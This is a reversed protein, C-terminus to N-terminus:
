AAGRAAMVSLGAAALLAHLEARPLWTTVVTGGPSEIDIVLDGAEDIAIREVAGLGPLRRAVAGRLHWRGRKTM